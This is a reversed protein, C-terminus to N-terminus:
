YRQNLKEFYEDDELIICDRCMWSAGVCDWASVAYYLGEGREKGYRSIYWELVDKSELPKNRPAAKLAKKAEEAAELAEENYPGLPRWQKVLLEGTFDGELPDDAGGFPKLESIHRGCVDCRGDPPPPNIGGKKLDEEKSVAGLSGWPLIQTM